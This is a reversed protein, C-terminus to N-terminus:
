AADKRTVENLRKQYDKAAAKSERAKLKVEKKQYRKAGAATVSGDKNQFRRVGWRQGLIGHHQLETSYENFM